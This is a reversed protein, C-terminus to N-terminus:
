KEGREDSQPSVNVVKTLSCLKDILASVEDINIDYNITKASAQIMGLVWEKRTAGDSFKHEAEAMFNMILEILKNWNKEKVSKKVYEILKDILPIMILLISLIFAIYDIWNM